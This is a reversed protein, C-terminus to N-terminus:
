IGSIIKIDNTRTPTSLQKSKSVKIKKKLENISINENLAVREIGYTAILNVWQQRTRTKPDAGYKEEFQDKLKKQEEPAMKEYLEKSIEVISRAERKQKAIAHIKGPEHMMVIRGM